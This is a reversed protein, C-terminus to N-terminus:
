ARRSNLLLLIVGAVVVGLGFWSYLLRGSMMSGRLINLGQLIWIIGVVILVIGGVLSFRKM